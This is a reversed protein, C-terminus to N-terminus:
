GCSFLQQGEESGKGFPPLFASGPPVLPSGWHFQDLGLLRQRVQTIMDLNGSIEFSPM